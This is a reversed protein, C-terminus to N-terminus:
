AIIDQTRSTIQLIESDKVKAEKNSSIGDYPDPVVSLLTFLTEIGFDSICDLCKLSAKVLFWNAVNICVFMRVQSPTLKFHKM